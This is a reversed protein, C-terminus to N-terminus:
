VGNNPKTSLGSLRVIEGSRTKFPKGDEGLIAGFWIHKLKMSHGPKWRNYLEFLQQFHLQQRGDTRLHGREAGATKATSSRRLTPRPTTPRM